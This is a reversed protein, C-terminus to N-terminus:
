DVFAAAVKLHNEKSFARFLLTFQVGFWLLMVKTTLVIRVFRQRCYIVLGFDVKVRLHYSIRFYAVLFILAKCLVPLVLDVLRTIEPLKSFLKEFLYRFELEYPM